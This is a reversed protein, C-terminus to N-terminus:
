IKPRVTDCFRILDMRMAEPVCIIIDGLVICYYPFRACAKDLVERITPWCEFKFPPPPPALFARADDILIVHPHPSTNIADLEALVPCNDEDAFFGAGAHGDLWFFTTGQLSSVVGPMISSSDGLLFEINNFGQLNAIARQQYERKVEITVVRPFIGAAFRTGDGLYTGTEVFSGVGHKQAFGRVLSAWPEASLNGM